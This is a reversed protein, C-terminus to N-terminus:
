AARQQFDNAAGAQISESLTQLALEAARRYHELRVLRTEGCAAAIAKARVSVEEAFLSKWRALEKAAITEIGLSETDNM